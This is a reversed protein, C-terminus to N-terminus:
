KLIYSLSVGIRTPMLCYGESNTREVGGISFDADYPDHEFYEKHKYYVAGFGAHCDICIRRSLSFVYGFTLGLGIASGNYVKGKWSIDYSAGVGGAGVFYHHMPRGSFYYRYEPQVAILKMDKGWPKYNGMVNVGVSSREGAVLEFGLSPTQLLDTALDTNVSLMQASTTLCAMVTLLTLLLKRM